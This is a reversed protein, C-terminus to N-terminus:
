RESFHLSKDYCSKQYGGHGGLAHVQHVQNVLLVQSWVVVSGQRGNFVKQELLFQSSMHHVVVVPVGLVGNEISLVEGGDESFVTSNGDDRQFLEHRVGEETLIEGDWKETLEPLLVWGDESSINLRWKELSEPHEWLEWHVETVWDEEVLVNNRLNLDNGLGNDWGSTLVEIESGGGGRSEVWVGGESISGPVVLPRDWHRFGGESTIWGGGGGVVLVEELFHHSVHVHVLHSLVVDRFGERIDLHERITLNLFISESFHDVGDGSHVLDGDSIDLEDVFLNDWNLAHVEGESNFAHGVFVLHVFDEAVGLGDLIDEEFVDDEVLDVSVPFDDGRLNIFGKESFVFLDEGLHVVHDELVLVDHGWFDEGGDKSVLVNEWFHVLSKEVGLLGEGWFDEGGDKLVLVHSWLEVLKEDLSVLVDHGGLDEGGDESLLNVLWLNESTQETLVLGDEGVLVLIDVVFVIDGVLWDGVVLHVLEGGAGEQGSHELVLNEGWPHVHLGHLFVLDLLHNLFDLFLLQHLLEDLVLLVLGKEVHVSFDEGGHFLLQGVDWEGEGLGHNSGSNFLEKLLLLFDLILYEL